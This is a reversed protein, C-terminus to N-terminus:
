KKGFVVELKNIEGKPQDGTIVLEAEVAFNGHSNQIDGELNWKPWDSDGILVTDPIAKGNVKINELKVISDSERNLLMFQIADFDADKTTSYEARYEYEANLEVWVQGDEADYGFRVKNREEWEGLPKEDDTTTGRYFDIQTRNTTGLKEQANTLYVEAGSALNNFNLLRLAGYTTDLDRSTTNLNISDTDDDDEDEDVVELGEISYNLRKVINGGRNIVNIIVSDGNALSGNDEEGAIEYDFVPNNDIIKIVEGEGDDGQLQVEFRSWKAKMYSNHYSKDNGHGKIKFDEVGKAQVAAPLALFTVLAIPVLKGIIKKM